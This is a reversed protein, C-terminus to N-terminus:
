AIPPPTDPPITISRLAVDPQTPPNWAPALAAFPFEATPRLTVVTCGAMAMCDRSSHHSSGTPANGPCPGSDAPMEHHPAEAAMAAQDRSQGCEFEGGLTAYQVTLLLLLGSSLLRGLM